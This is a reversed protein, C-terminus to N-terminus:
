LPDVYLQVRDPLVVTVFQGDSSINAAIAEPWVKYQEGGRLYACGRDRIAVTFRKSVWCPSLLSCDEAFTLYPMQIGQEDISWCVGNSSLLLCNDPTSAPLLRADGNGQRPERSRIRGDMEITVLADRTLVLLHRGAFAMSSVVGISPIDVVKRNLSYLTIGGTLDAVAFRDTDARVAIRFVGMEIDLLRTQDGKLGISILSKKWTGALWRSACFQVDGVTGDLSAAAVMEGGAFCRVQGDWNAVAWLDTPGRSVCRLPTSLPDSRWVTEGGELIALSRRPSELVLIRRRSLPWANQSEIPFEALLGWSKLQAPEDLSGSDIPTEAEFSGLGITAEAEFSGLGSDTALVTESPESALDRNPLQAVTESPEPPSPTPAPQPPAVEEKETEPVPAAVEPAPPQASPQPDSPLVFIQPDISIGSAQAADRLMQRMAAATPPRADPFLAMCQVLMKAIPEPVQPNLEKASRLPDPLQRGVADLRDLAQVPRENTLLHYATAALSFLDASAKTVQGRIQELSSYYISFGFTTVGTTLGTVDSPTGKALGFDLLFLEGRSTRKINHPKIDRHIIPERQGHLYMLLELLQDIWGLVLSTELATGNSEMEQALDYGQIYQMVLFQDEGEFFHASVDPLMKHRLNALIQAERKFAKRLYEERFFTQKVAVPKEIDVTKAEYVAGMGGEAILRVIRYDKVITGPALTKPKM